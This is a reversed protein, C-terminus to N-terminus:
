LEPHILRLPHDTAIASFDGLNDTALPLPPNASLASAAVWLDNTGGRHLHGRYKVHMPAWQETVAADFPLVVFHGRIAAKWEAMRTTGWLRSIPLALLEAVNAFSLTLLHGRLLPRWRGAQPADALLWTAVDTDVLLPGAPVDEPNM